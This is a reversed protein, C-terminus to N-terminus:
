SALAHIAVALICTWQGVAFLIQMCIHIDHLQWYLLALTHCDGWIAVTPLLSESPALRSTVLALALVITSTVLALALVITSTTSTM